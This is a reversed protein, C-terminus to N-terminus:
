SRDGKLVEPVTNKRGAAVCFVVGLTSSRNKFFDTVGGEGRGAGAEAPLAAQEMWVAKAKEAESM